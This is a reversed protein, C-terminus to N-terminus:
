SEVAVASCNGAKQDISELGVRVCWNNGGCNSGLREFREM